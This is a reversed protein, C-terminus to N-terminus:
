RPLLPSRVVMVDRPGLRIQAGPRVSRGSLLDTGACCATLDVAVDRHNLLFTFRTGDPAVRVTRELDPVDAHPGLLDHRVLVQRTVWAVGEDDLCTGVYWGEGSGFTHRTVAATGAYFDARYTGVVEAGRPIVLEFFLRAASEVQSLGSGLRVPNM